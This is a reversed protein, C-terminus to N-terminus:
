KKGILYREMFYEVLEADEKVDIEVEARDQDFLYDSDTEPPANEAWSKKHIIDQKGLTYGELWKDELYSM